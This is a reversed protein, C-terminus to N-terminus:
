PPNRPLTALLPSLPHLRPILPYHERRSFRYPSCGVQCAEMIASGNLLDLILYARVKILKRNGSKGPVIPLTSAVRASPPVPGM